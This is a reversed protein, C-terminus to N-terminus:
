NEYKARKQLTRWSKGKGPFITKESLITLFTKTQRTSISVDNEYCFLCSMTSYDGASHMKLSISNNNHSKIKTTKARKLANRCKYLVLFPIITMQGSMRNDKDTKWQGGTFYSMILWLNLFEFILLETPEKIKLKRM